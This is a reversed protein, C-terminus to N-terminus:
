QWTFSCIKRRALDFGRCYSPFTICIKGSRAASPKFCLCFNSLMRFFHQSCSTLHPNKKGELNITIFPYLFSSKQNVRTAQLMDTPRQSFFSTFDSRQVVSDSSVHLYVIRNSINSLHCPIMKTYKTLHTTPQILPLIGPSMSPSNISAFTIKQPTPMWLTQMPHLLPPLLAPLPLINQNVLNTINLNM